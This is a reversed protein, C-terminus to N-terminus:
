KENGDVKLYLLIISKDIVHALAGLGTEQVMLSYLRFQLPSFLPWRKPGLNLRSCAGNGGGEGM